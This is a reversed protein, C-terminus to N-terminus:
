KIGDKNMNFKIQIGLKRVPYLFANTQLIFINRLKNSILNFLYYVIIISILTSYAAGQIGYEEILIYNLIINIIAGVISRYFLYKQMNEVIFWNQIAIGISVFVGTWVHITLVSATENYQVGYLLNVILNSNFAIIISVFISFWLFIDTLNQLRSYYLIGSKKKSNIIAPFLSAAVIAPLLLWAETLKIAASYQGVAANDLFEKIMIQDIKMYISTIFGTLILPYSDKLLSIAIYKNFILNSRRVKLKNKFYFYILGSAIVISDFVYLWAFYILSSENLILVIKLAGSLLLASIKTFVVYKSLVHSRFYFDVVDFSKFIISSAMIFILMVEQTSLSIFNIVMIIMIIVAVAGSFKLWFATAILEEQKNRNNVLERIVISDLGLTAFVMFLGVFSLIYSLLGFQEPGLYRIVWIGIFLNVIIQFAKELLLWSIDRSYKIIGPYTKIFNLKEIFLAINENKELNLAM